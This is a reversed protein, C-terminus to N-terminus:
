QRKGVRLVSDSLSAGSAAINGMHLYIQPKGGEEVVAIAGGVALWELKGCLVLKGAAKLSRIEAESSAWAVKSGADVSVGVKGLEGTLAADRCGVMGPSNAGAALIKVFKAQVEVPLVGGFVPLAVFSLVVLICPIPIV